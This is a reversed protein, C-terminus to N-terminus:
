VRCRHGLHVEEGEEEQGEREGDLCDVETNVNGGAFLLDETARYKGTGKILGLTEWFREDVGVSICVGVM